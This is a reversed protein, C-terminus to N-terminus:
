RAELAALDREAFTRHEWEENVVAGLCRRVPHVPDAPYGHAPNPDTVRDLEEDTLDAMVQRVIAQRDARVPLVEDLSPDANVDLGVDLGAEEVHPVDWPHFPAEVGLVTRSVWADTVFVLHRLTELFSWEDDVREHLAVEPLRRAREVTGAWRRELIEWAARHEDATRPSMKARDPDRRNLEADVLPGIDVGNVTVGDLLGSIDVHKLWAGSIKAGTLIVNHLRAGTLDTSTFRAGRLDDDQTFEM